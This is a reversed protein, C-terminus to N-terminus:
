NLSSRASSAHVDNKRKAYHLADDIKAALLADKQQDALELARNLLAVITKLGGDDPTM